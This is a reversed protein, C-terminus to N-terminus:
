SAELTKIRSELMEIKKIAEQLAIMGVTVYSMHNYSLNGEEDAFIFERAVADTELDYDQALFGVNKLMDYEANPDITYEGNANKVESLKYNYYAPKFRDKIFDYYDRNIARTSKRLNYLEFEHIEENIEDYSVLTGDLREINEKQRIDSAGVTGGEACLGKWKLNPSNTGLWFTNTQTPVLQASVAVYKNIDSTIFMYGETGNGFGVYGRRVGTPSRFDIYPYSADVRIQKKAVIYGDALIDSKTYISKGNYARIWTGDEMHWGGGWDQFYLGNNGRPRVWGNFQVGTNFTPEGSYPLDLITNCTRLRLGFYSALQGYWGGNSGINTKGWGYWPAENINDGITGFTFAKAKVTGSVETNMGLTILDDSRGSGYIDFHRCNTISIGNSIGSIQTSGGDELMLARIVLNGDTNGRLVTQGANNEIRIAGNKIAVGSGDIQTSGEYCESHHPSWPLAVEGENLMVDYFWAYGDNDSDFITLEIGVRTNAKTDFTVTKKVYGAGTQNAVASPVDSYNGSTLWTSDSNRVVFGVRPCRHQSVYFSLTYKTNAKVKVNQQVGYEGTTNTAKLVLVNKGSPVYNRNTWVDRAKNTGNASHEIDAWGYRDTRKFGGNLLLNAGGSSSFKAVWSDVTQTVSSTTAYNKLQNATNTNAANIAEQKAINITNSVTNIIADSTIKSEASKLRAETNTIKSDVESITPHAFYISGTTGTGYDPATRYNLFRIALYKTKAHFKFFDNCNGKPSNSDVEVNHGYIYSEFTRWTTNKKAKSEKHFYPNTNLSSSTGIYVGINNNNKDYAFVGFYWSGTGNESPNQVMLSIKYTKTSDIEFKNSVVQANGNTSVNAYYGVADSSTITGINSNWRDKTGSRSFNNILIKETIKELEATTAEVTSVKSSIGSLNTEISVVKNNTTTLKGDITTIDNNATAMQGQLTTVKSESSSVRQTISNLNQEFSVQKSEVTQVKGNLNSINSNAKSMQEQLNTINTTHSGVTSNLGNVTLKLNAYADKLKKTTGDEIITTDSILAEIKGQQATIQTTNSEIREDIDEPAATWDTAKSGFELKINSYETVGMQTFFYLTINSINTNNFRSLDETVTVYHWENDATLTGVRNLVDNYPSIRLFGGIGNPHSANSAKYWYSLTVYGINNLDLFKDLMNQSINARGTADSKSVLRISNNGKGGNEVISFEAVSNNTWGKIGLNGTSNYVLNRGGVQINNVNTKLTNFAIDLSQGEKDLQIKTAKIVSTNSDKNVEQIISGIDVKDGTVAGQGIMDNVILGDSIAERKLGTHDLLVSTGDEGRLIFNFNGQSDKGLQLRVKNNKDKFQQTSGVIEIGGDASKIVFKETSIIGANIKSVDLSEIMANKIFGDEVTVKSSTLILSHINDSTLNGNVLNKIHATDSELVDIKGVIANLEGIDAKGILAENINAFQINADAVNLKIANLEAVNAIVVNLEGVNAKEVYLVDIRANVAELDVVKGVNAEFDYIQETKIGNVTNGDITGNDTTINNVTDTTDQFEKQIDEFKLITNAIECTNRDPEDPYEVIKVIRQKEKIEKEKSILTIIDGLEYSLIDTYEENINALDLVNARYSKYPKSLDNLKATADETLSDLDVYREDKWIYTKVKNSYQFNEVTVKLDGKGKAIIRTYFDYSNSQVELSILNLSDIFYVGKDSGRKEFINIRKNLTDFELECRYIKKAEQIISFSSCNTKRVTRRRTVNCSGIIWGTGALALNICESITKNTTDFNEFAKGELEELNLTATISKWKGRDNISKVIFEDKKNRIYCEEQIDKALHSPYLFSLTKDGSSLESEICYDKYKKMGKIKDKKLDYLQLM